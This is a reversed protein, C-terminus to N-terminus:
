VYAHFVGAIIEETLEGKEGIEKVKVSMPPTTDFIYGNYWGQFIRL